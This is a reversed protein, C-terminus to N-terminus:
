IKKIAITLEGKLLDLLLTPHWPLARGKSGLLLRAEANVNKGWNTKDTSAKPEASSLQNAGFANFQAPLLQGQVAM